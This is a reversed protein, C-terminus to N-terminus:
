KGIIGRFDPSKQAQDGALGQMQQSEPEREAFV